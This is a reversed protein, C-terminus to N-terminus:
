PVFLPWADPFEYARSAEREPVRRRPSRRWHDLVRGDLGLARYKLADRRFTLLQVHHASKAFGPSQLYWRSRDPSRQPVGLGGEGVYVVGEDKSVRRGDKIPVTRKLVHGDSECALDVDYTEFLPTWHIRANSPSKVAPYAPHHYNTVIWRTSRDALQLTSELWERQRGGLSATSDLTLLTLQTGFQTAWYDRDPGGPLGFIGNNNDLEGRLNARSYEHNGRAPIIPLQRRGVYTETHDDLWQQWGSWRMGLGTYDGGHMFALVDDRREFISRILRNVRRRM